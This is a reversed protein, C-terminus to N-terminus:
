RRSVQQPGVSLRHQLPHLRRYELQCAPLSGGAISGSGTLKQLPASPRIGIETEDTFREGKSNVDVTVKGIGITPSAALKFEARGETNAAINVSQEQDGIPHLPGSLRLKVDAAAGSTITNSITVPMTVTDGPSMFRPLASSLVIPDAITMTADRSGFSENKYAVAMLRVSGSFQPIDFEFNAEGSGDAQAIGSWYSLIKIRHAPVPNTRKKMDGDGGTSSGLAAKIEPFLLPYLDYDTVELARKAYFHTYPDPTIFDTVQLVGNDVAALTIMSGPSAKVTVKQHTHSRVSAQAEIEVAMHREKAEVKVSQFGHAVTLPIDSLEHPKVLTATIYVNPIADATLPLSVHAQRKDVDVYQYFLVKDTEMTILMRGDFPTKFLAGVNEGTYYSTKEM